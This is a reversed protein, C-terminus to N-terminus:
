TTNARSVRTAGKNILLKRIEAALYFSGAVVIFKGKTKLANQLAARPDGFYAYDPFQTAYGLVSSLYYNSAKANLVAFTEAADKSRKAAFILQYGEGFRSAEIYKLLAEASHPNHAGDVLIKYSKFEFLELRAPLAPAKLAKEQVDECLGLHNIAAKALAQNELLHNAENIVICASNLRKAKAKIIALPKAKAATIVAKGSRIAYAKDETIAELSNGLSNQHDLSVNTIVSLEFSQILQTADLKSGVGAEIVAIEVNCAEFYQLALALTLEFFAPQPNLKLSQIKAIFSCVFEEDIFAQNVTIREAFDNVHPSSFRGTKFGAVKLGEAIMNAVSGKGNTGVVYICKAPSSLELTDWLLRMRDLSRPAGARTQKYLWSLAQPYVSSNQPM